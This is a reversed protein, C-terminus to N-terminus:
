RLQLTGEPHEILVVIWGAELEAPLLYTSYQTNGCPIPFTDDNFVNPCLLQVCRADRMQRDGGIRGSHIKSILRMSEDEPVGLSRYSIDVPGTGVMNKELKPFVRPFGGASRGCRLIIGNGGRLGDREDDTGSVAGSVECATQSRNRLLAPRWILDNDDVVARDTGFYLCNAAGGTDLVDVLPSGTEIYSAVRAGRKSGSVDDGVCVVVYHKM